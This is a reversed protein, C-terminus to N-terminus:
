QIKKDEVAVENSENKKRFVIFSSIIVCNVIMFLCGYCLLYFFYNQGQFELYYAYNLWMGQGLLWSLGLFVFSSRKSNEIQDMASPLLALYWLFYQSTCVKNFTVFILTTIFCQYGLSTIKNNKSDKDCLLMPSFKVSVALILLFQITFGVLGLIKNFKYNEPFNEQDLVGTPNKYFQALYMPYFYPSFNHRIDSRNFHYFLYEDLFQDGYPQYFM